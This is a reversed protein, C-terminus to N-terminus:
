RGFIQAIGRGIAEGMAKLGIKNVIKDMESPNSVFGGEVLLAPGNSGRLVALYDTNDTGPMLRTKIGRNVTGFTRVINNLIAQAASKSKGGNKDRLQYFVETGGISSNSSSNYHISAFLDPRYQNAFEPRSIPTSYVDTTRTMIVRAGLSRLYDATYNATKLTLHKEMQGSGTAGSDHGGHGPDLVITRGRLAGTSPIETVTPTNPRPTPTNPKPTPTPTPKQKPSQVAKRVRGREADPNIVASSTAELSKSFHNMVESTIGGGIQVVKGTKATQLYKDYAKSVRNTPTIIVPTNMKGALPGVSISDVLADNSSKSIYVLKENTAYFEDLIIANTYHRDSGSIRKVDNKNSLYGKVTDLVSNQMSGDGGIFYARDAPFRYLFNKVYSSVSAKGTVLIPQVREAARAAISLADAPGNQSSVVYIEEIGINKAMVEAIRASTDGLTVGSIRTVGAGSASRIAKEVSSNVNYSSGVIYVNKPKLRRLENAVTKPLSTNKTVLIPAKNMSALPTSIIGEMANFANVIVVSDAGSPWGRQSIRVATEYRDKGSIKDYVGLAKLYDESDKDDANIDGYDKSNIESVAKDNDKETLQGVNKEDENYQDNKSQDKREGNDTGDGIRMEQVNTSQSPETTESDAYGIALNTSVLVASLFGATLRKLAKNM